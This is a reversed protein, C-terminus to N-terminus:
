NECNTSSLESCIRFSKICTILTFKRAGFIFNSFYLDHTNKPRKFIAFYKRLHASRSIFKGDKTVEQAPPM